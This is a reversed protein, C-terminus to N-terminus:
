GGISTLRTVSSVHLYQHHHHIDSSLDFATVSEEQDTDTSLQRNTSQRHQNLSLFSM